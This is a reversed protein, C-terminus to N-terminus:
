HGPAEAAAPFFRDMFANRFTGAPDWAAMLATFDAHRPYRGRVVEPATTFLKGWHPRAQLRDLR